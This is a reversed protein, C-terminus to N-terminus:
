VGDIWWGSSTERIFPVVGSRTVIESLQSLALNISEIDCELVQALDEATQPNGKAKLVALIQLKIPSLSVGHIRIRHWLSLLSLLIGTLAGISLNGLIFGAGAASVVSEKFVNFFDLDEDRIVWSGLM